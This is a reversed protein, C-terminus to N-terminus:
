KRRAKKTKPQKKEKTEENNNEQNYIKDASSALGNELFDFFINMYEKYDKDAPVPIHYNKTCIEKSSVLEGDKNEELVNATVKFVIEHPCGILKKAQGDLDEKPLSVSDDYLEYLKNLIDQFDEDNQETM